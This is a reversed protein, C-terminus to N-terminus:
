SSIPEGYPLITHLDLKSLAIGTEISWDRGHEENELNDFWRIPIWATGHLAGCLAGTM